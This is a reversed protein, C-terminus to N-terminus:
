RSTETRPRLVLLRTDASIFLTSTGAAAKVVILRPLVNFVEDYVVSEPSEYVRVRWRQLDRDGGTVVALLPSDLHPTWAEAQLLRLPEEIPIEFRVSGKADVGKVTTDGAVIVRADPWDVVGRPLGPWNVVGLAEGHPSMIELGAESQTSIVWGPERLSPPAIAHLVPLVRPQRWVQQGQVDLRVVAQATTAYFETQGDADLDGPLLKTPPLAPDQRFSWISENNLSRVQNGQDGGETHVVVLTDALRAFTSYWNWLRGPAGGFAVRASPQPGVPDFLQAGNHDVVALEEGPQGDFNGALHWAAGETVLATQFREGGAVVRPEGIAALHQSRTAATAPFMEPRAFFIFTLYLAGIAVLTAAATAIPVRRRHIAALGAGAAAGAPMAFLGVALPSFLLALGSTSGRAYFLLNARIGIEVALAAAGAGGIVWPSSGFRAALLLAAYPLLAYIIFPIALPDFGSAVAGTAAIVILALLCVVGAVATTSV